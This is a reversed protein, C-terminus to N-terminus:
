RIDDPDQYALWLSHRRHTNSLKRLSQHRYNAISFESSTSLQPEAVIAASRRAFSARLKVQSVSRNLDTSIWRVPFERLVSVQTIAAPAWMSKATPSLRSRSSSQLVQRM